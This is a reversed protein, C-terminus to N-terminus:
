TQHLIPAQPRQQPDFPRSAFQQPQVFNFFFVQTLRANEPHDGFNVTHSHWLWSRFLVLRNFRMPVTMSLEWKSRDLGDGQILSLRMDEFSKFGYLAIEAPDDPMRELGLEKHRWFSTGGQCHEPLNLFLVGAWDRGPDVHIDQAPKDKAFSMRFHGNASKKSPMVPHAVLRSIISIIQQNMLAKSSSRGSYVMKKHEPYDVTLAINRVESPDDYFDDVVIIQQKM